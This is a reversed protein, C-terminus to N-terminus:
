KIDTARTTEEERIINRMYKELWLDMWEGLTMYSDETLEVGYYENLKQHM